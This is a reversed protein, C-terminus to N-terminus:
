ERNSKDFTDFLNSNNEITAFYRWCIFHVSKQRVSRVDLIKCITCYSVLFHVHARALLLWHLNTRFLRVIVLQTARRMRMSSHKPYWSFLKGCKEKEVINENWCFTKAILHCVIVLIIQIMFRFNM